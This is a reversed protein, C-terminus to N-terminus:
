GATREGVPATRSRSVKYFTKSQLAPEISKQPHHPIMPHAHQHHQQQPHHPLQRPPLPLPACATALLRRTSPCALPSRRLAQRALPLSSTTSTPHLPPAPSPTRPNVPPASPPPFAALLPPAIIGAPPPFSLGLLQVSPLHIPVPRLVRTHLLMARPNHHM